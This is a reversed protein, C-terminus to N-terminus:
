MVSCTSPTATATPAPFLPLKTKPDRYARLADEILQVREQQRLEAEHLERERAELEELKRNLEKIREANVDPKQSTRWYEYLLLSSAVLLIFSDGIVDAFLDVAKNEPLSRFRRRWVSQPLIQTPHSEKATTGYKARLEQEKRIQEETKVTPAAAREKAEKIADPNRLLAVNLRMNLQHIM